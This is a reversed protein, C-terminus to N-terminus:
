SYFWNLYFSFKVKMLHLIFPAMLVIGLIELFVGFIPGGLIYTYYTEGKFAKAEWTAEIGIYVKTKSPEIKLQLGNRLEEYGITFDFDKRLVNIARIYVEGDTIEFSFVDGSEVKIYGKVRLNRVDEPKFFFSSKV